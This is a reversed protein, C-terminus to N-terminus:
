VDLHLPMLMSKYSGEGGPKIYVGNRSSKIELRVLNDESNVAGIADILRSANFAIRVDEGSHSCAISEDAKSDVQDNQASIDIQQGKIQLIVAGRSKDAYVGARKLSRTLINKDIEVVCPSEYVPLVMKYDVFREAILLGFMETDASRILVKYDTYSFEVEGEPLASSLLRASERHILLSKDLDIAKNEYTAITTADTAVAVMGNTGKELFVGCMSYRIEDHSACFIVADISKKLEGGNILQGKEFVPFAPEDKLSECNIRYVGDGSLLEVREGVQSLTIEKEGLRKLTEALIAIPVACEVPEGFHVDKLVSRIGAGVGNVTATLKQGSGRLIVCESLPSLARKTQFRFLPELFALLVAASIKM